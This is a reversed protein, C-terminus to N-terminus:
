AAHRVDWRLVPGTFGAQGRLLKLTEPTIDIALAGISSRGDPQPLGLPKADWGIGILQQLGVMHTVCTLRAISYLLAFEVLAVLLQKRALRPDALDPDTCFRSVEWIGEGRPVRGECLYPFLDGLLHAGKTPLLRLSGTVGGADDLSLLYVAGEGDFQDIELEGETVPLEWGLRDVFVRKRQHHMQALRAAHRSRDAATVVLVM